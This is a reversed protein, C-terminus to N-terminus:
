MSYTIISKPKNVYTSRETSIQGDWTCRNIIRQQLNYYASDVTSNIIAKLLDLRDSMTVASCRADM